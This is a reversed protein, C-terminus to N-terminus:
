ASPLRSDLIEVLQEFNKMDRKNILYFCRTTRLIAWLFNKHNQFDVIQDFCFDRRWLLAKITLGDERITLEDVEFIVSPVMYIDIVFICLFHFLEASVQVTRADVFLRNILSLPSAVNLLFLCCFFFLRMYHKRRQRSCKYLVKPEVKEPYM